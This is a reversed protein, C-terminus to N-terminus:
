DVNTTANYRILDNQPNLRLQVDVLCSVLADGVQGTFGGRLTQGLLDIWAVDM